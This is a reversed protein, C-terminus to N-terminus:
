NKTASYVYYQNKSDPLFMNSANLCNLPLKLNSSNISFTNM